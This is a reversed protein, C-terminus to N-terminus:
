WVLFFFYDLTTTRKYIGKVHIIQFTNMYTYYIHVHPSYSSFASTLIIHIFSHINFTYSIYIQIYLDYAKFTYLHLKHTYLHLKVLSTVTHQCVGSFRDRSLSHMHVNEHIYIKM